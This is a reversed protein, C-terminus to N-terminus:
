LLGIKGQSKMFEVYKKRGKDFGSCEFHDDCTAKYAEKAGIIVPPDDYNAPKGNVFRVTCTAPGGCSDCKAFMEVIKSGEVSSALELLELSVPWRERNFLHALNVSVVSHGNELMESFKQRLLKPDEQCIFQTEDFFITHSKNPIADLKKSLVKHSDINASLPIARIPPLDNHSAIVNKGYRTDISSTFELTQRGNKKALHNLKILLSSKSGFMPALILVFPSDVLEMMQKETIENIFCPGIDPKYRYM